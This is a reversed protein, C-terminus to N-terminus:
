KWCRRELLIRKWRRQRWRVLTRKSSTTPVTQLSPKKNTERVFLKTTIKDRTEAREIVVLKIVARTLSLCVGGATPVPPRLSAIECKPKSKPKRRFSRSVFRLHREDNRKNNNHWEVRSPMHFHISYVFCTQANQSKKEEEM